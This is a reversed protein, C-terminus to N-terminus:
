QPFGQAKWENFLNIQEPTLAAGNKPMFGVSGQARQIRNLILDIDTKTTTYLTYNTQGGGTHCNGCYNLILPKIDGAYTVAPGTVVITYVNSFLRSGAANTATVSVAYTGAALGSSSAIVGQANITIGSAASVTYSIPQTGSISPVVSTGATGQSVTFGSPNYTLGSPLTAATITITYVNNFVATGANNAATVQVSYTGPALAAAASIVGSSSNITINGGHAPTASLSFSIPTTGNISPQVSNGAQGQNLNLNNTPYVLGNPAIASNSISVTYINAFATTGAANTATVSIQYTGATITNAVSIKGTNDITIANTAPVSSLSYSVPQTGKVVPIASSGATGTVLNLYNPAYTIAAPKVPQVLVTLANPFNVSGAANSATVNTTYTGVAIGSSIKISGTPGISIRGESPNTVIAFSIPNTGSVSPAATLLSDGEAIKVTDEAYFLGSPAIIHDTVTIRYVNPFAVGGAANTCTISIDYVGAVLSSSATIIGNGDITIAGQSAPTTAITFYVPQTGELTPKASSGSTGKELQLLSQSYLLNSPPTAAGQLVSEHRCAILVFFLYIFIFPKGMASLPYQFIPKRGIFPNKM